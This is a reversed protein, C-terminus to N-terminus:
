LLWCILQDLKEKLEKQMKWLCSFLRSMPQVSRADNLRIRSRFCYNPLRKAVETDGEGDGHAVGHRLKGDYKTNSGLKIGTENKRGFM